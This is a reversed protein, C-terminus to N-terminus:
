QKVFTKKVGNVEIFYLGQPLAKISLTGEANLAERNVEKGEVSLVRVLSGKDVGTINVVEAAPNPFLSFTSRLQEDLSLPSNNILVELGNAYAQTVVFRQGEALRIPANFSPHNLYVFKDSFSEIGTFVLEENSLNSLGNIVLPIRIVGRVSPRADIALRKGDEAITAINMGNGAFKRADYRSDFKNTSGEQLRVAIEDLSNENQKIHIRLLDEIAGSRFVAHTPPSAPIVDEKQDITISSNSETEALVVFGQGAAIEKRGYNTSVGNIYSRSRSVGGIDSSYYDIDFQYLASEVNTKTVLDWNITAALPNGVFNWKVSDANSSVCDTTCKSVNITFYRELHPDGTYAFSALSAGYILSASVGEGLNWEETQNSPKYFGKNIAYFPTQKKNSFRYFSGSDPRSLNYTHNLLTNSNQGLRQITQGKVPPATHIWRRGQAMLANNPDPFTYPHTQNLNQPVNPYRIECTFFSTNTLEFGPTGIAEILNLNPTSRSSLNTNVSPSVNAKLTLRKHNLDLKAGSKLILEKRVNLSLNGTHPYDLRVLGGPNNIVLTGVGWTNGTIKQPYDAMNPNADTGDLEITGNGDVEEVGNYSVDGSINLKANPQFKMFRSPAVTLRRIKYNVGAMSNVILTGNQVLVDAGVPPLTKPFWNTNPDTTWENIRSWVWTCNDVVNITNSVNSTCGNAIVRLSYNGPSNLVLNQTTAGNSWLYTQGEAITPGQLTISLGLRSCLTTTSDRIITPTAPVPNVTVEIGNSVASTCTGAIVQLTYTGSVNVQINQTTAGNSWLYTMGAGISPSQLTVNGGSCFTTPGSATITPTEPTGTVSIVVPDSIESSCCATFIQVTYTGAQAVVIDKTTAGNSWLYNYGVPASLTVNGGTCLNISGNVVITPKPPSIVYVEIPSSVASTCGGVITQLTYSGTQKVTINQTTLGNSWLYSFGAPASLTVSDGSCFTTTGSPTITPTEPTSCEISSRLSVKKGTAFSYNSGFLGMSGILAILFLSIRNLTVDGFVPKSNSKLKFVGQNPVKSTQFDASSNLGGAFPNPRLLGGSNFNNLM